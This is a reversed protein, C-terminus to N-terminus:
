SGGGTGEKGRQRDDNEAQRAQRKRRGAREAEMERVIRRLRERVEDTLLEDVSQSRMKRYKRRQVEGMRFITSGPRNYLFCNHWVTEVDGLVSLTAQDLIDSSMTALSPAPLLPMKDSVSRARGGEAVYRGTALGSLITGLDMPRRVIECYLPVDEATVPVSFVDGYDWLMLFELIERLRALAALKATFAPCYSLMTTTAIISDMSNDGSVSNEPLKESERRCLRCVWEEDGDDVLEAMVGAVGPRSLCHRHFSRPCADCMVLDGSKECYHCYDTSGDDLGLSPRPSSDSSTSRDDAADGEPVIINANDDYDDGWRPPSDPLDRRIIAGQVSYFTRYENPLSPDADKGGCVERPFTFPPIRPVDSVVATLSSALATAPAATSAVAALSGDGGRGRPRRRGRGLGLGPRPDGRCSDGPDSSSSPGPIPTTIKKRSIPAELTAVSGESQGAASAAAVGMVTMTAVSDGSGQQGRGLKEEGSIRNGEDKNSNDFDDGGGDNNSNEAIRKKRRREGGSAGATVVHREGDAELLSEGPAGGVDVSSGM